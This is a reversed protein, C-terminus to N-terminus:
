RSEEVLHDYVGPVALQVKVGWSTGFSLFDCGFARLTSQKAM